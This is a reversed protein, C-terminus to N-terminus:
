LRVYDAELSMRRSLWCTQLGRGAQELLVKLILVAGPKSFPGGLLWWLLAKIVSRHPLFVVGNREKKVSWNGRRSFSSGKTPFSTLCWKGKKLYARPLLM